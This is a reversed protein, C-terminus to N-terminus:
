RAAFALRRQTPVEAGGNSAAETVPQAPATLKVGVLKSVGREEMTVGYLVDAKAITRKNHTIIIFQSQQVFRDLVRIFCNINNEDLAADVEDLICFPSPRVMYIAFLLSVATMAREGGSLLSVSQLQKGPPKATIEIGCNLPDNEDLLSLDARGGRFLEGFMERFNTRVQEFTEAFLKRTTSNIRAIVDLLERQSNTLDTNQAELFKYREELEDYEHVAELNVPGMNDLQARFDAIYKELNPSTLEASAPTAPTEGELKENRKALARWTKEFAAEDPTFGRLDIQYSRSIHGLLNDIKMQFQSERVQGQARRDQLEGLSDRVHRLESERDSIATLRTARQEAIEASNAQAEDRKVTRANILTESERSEDAQTALKREYMAIDAKRVTILEALEADRASMPERQAILNEHRQRHTAISLRLENTRETLEEEHLVTNKQTAEFATLESKQNAMQDRASRLDREVHALREDSAAIQRELAIKESQLTDIQRGTESLERQLRSATELATKADDRTASVSDYKKALAAEEKTLDAIQAKRELLSAARAESSGTFVIGERSVYEGALTAMALAPEVKKCELAQELEPFIVVDGLLRTVLAELPKPARVKDTAWAIAESPLFKQSTQPAAATLKPILLAAYGLKKEKLHGIIQSVVTADKLVIAHLSRGLAAEIAPIFKSDVDLHAVLSGAIAERFEASGNLGKLLAQSGEALGEGEENLQRLVELRSGKEALTRHLAALDQETQALSKEKERLTTEVDVPGRSGPQLSAAIKGVIKERAKTLTEIDTNLQEIQAHTLERRAKTGTLEEELASIRSESKSLSLQLEQLRTVRDSRKKHIEGALASLETLEAEKEKLQEEIEAISSNTQKIQATQQKRKNEADTVDRQSREVLEALEQARQRNFEIRNRHTAIESDLRQVEARCEAIEADIKDLAGREEALANEGNDIKARATKESALLSEIENRSGTLDRELSALQKSAHHTELVRLDAHLAQYRRAKGAQRQLSGIQRKVEKIVDGIRLLNAETAELKRLAERKQTKYKTIGAAEEFVARRDEPRSSLIMDIRGQEMMSYSTRAIGTDAFLSQIDRLRCPTKNLLYESNGDRYIRRTVRVDHWDIGFEEACDTFTLSVEGFGVPKRTDAGNFIVDAMEDGRLSKASQEGLAWKVADLVNSKGCGNPGVIATVGEHFNFVTKDAFSKFGFLELSQLHM